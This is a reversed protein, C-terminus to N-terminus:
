PQWDAQTYYIDLLCQQTVSKALRSEGVGYIQKSRLLGARCLQGVVCTRM